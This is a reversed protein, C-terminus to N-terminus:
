RRYSRVKRRKEVMAVKPVAWSMVNCSIRMSLKKGASSVVRAAKAADQSAALVDVAEGKAM